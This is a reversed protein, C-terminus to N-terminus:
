ILSGEISEGLDERLRHLFNRFFEDAMKDAKAGIVRQGFTGIRGSLNLDGKYIVKVEGESVPLLDVKTTQFGKGLGMLATADAIIEIHKHLQVDTVKLTAEFSVRIFSVKQDIKIFYNKESLSKVSKVGPMCWIISATDVIRDWVEQIPARIIATKEIIM